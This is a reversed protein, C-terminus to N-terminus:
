PLPLSRRPPPSPDQNTLRGGRVQQPNHSGHHLSERDRKVLRDFPHHRSISPILNSCSILLLGGLYDASNPSDGGIAARLGPKGVPVGGGAIVPNPLPLIQEVRHAPGLPLQLRKIVVAVTDERMQLMRQVGLWEGGTPKDDSIDLATLRRVETSEYGLRGIDAVPNHDDKRPHVVAEALLGLPAEVPLEAKDLAHPDPQGVM